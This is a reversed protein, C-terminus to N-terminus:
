LIEVLGGYPPRTIKSLKHYLKDFPFALACRFV